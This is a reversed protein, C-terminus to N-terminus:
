ARAVDLPVLGARDTDSQAPQYDRRAFVAFSPEQQTPAIGRCEECAQTSVITETVM